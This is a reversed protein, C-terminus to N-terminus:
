RARDILRQLVTDFGPEGRLPKLFPEMPITWGALGPPTEALLEDLTSIADRARGTLAHHLATVIAAETRRGNQRLERVAETARDFERAAEAERGQRRLAQALGLRSRAHTAHRELARTFMTEAGSPDGEELLVYGLGDWADIAFEEAFLARAKSAIERDFEARAGVRDGSALCVCGLLWHLGKGPFRELKITEDAEFALARALVRDALVFDGRAIHLMAIGFSAYAMQPFQVLVSELCALREAGWAAMGLRFEHRWNGPELAIARRGAAVAEVPREAGLLFFALASHAEALDADLEIARRAHAIAKTLADTDLRNRARSTQFTWFHAHGIGVHALAYRGDLGLAREFDAIAPQVLDIDLTELKLRGETFARYADLNATERVHLRPAPFPMVAQPTRPVPADTTEVEAVFRYGRRPVTQIFTPSASQDGIAQRLESVVQTLANDTVAVDPWLKALIEDKTLLTSPQRVFLHLLDLAKPSLPLPTEGQWLRYGPVDLVFPGFRYSAPM